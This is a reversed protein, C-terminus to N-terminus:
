ATVGERKRESLLLQLAAGEALATLSVAADADYPRFPLECGDEVLVRANIIDAVAISM